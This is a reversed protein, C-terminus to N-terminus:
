LDYLHPDFDMPYGGYDEIEGFVPESLDFDEETLECNALNIAQHREEKLFYIVAEQEHHSITVSKRKYCACTIAEKFISDFTLLGLFVM